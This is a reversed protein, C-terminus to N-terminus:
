SRGELNVGREDGGGEQAEDTGLRESISNTEKQESRRVGSDEISITDNLQLLPLLLRFALGYTGSKKYIDM